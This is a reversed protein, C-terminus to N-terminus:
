ALASLREQFIKRDGRAANRFRRPSVGAARHFTRVFNSLDAFGVDLAVDTISDSGEALLRAARRLRSRVLYQHPTVGIGKAFIRLFHFPSLGAQRATADLDLPALANADIWMAAEVARRRDREPLTVADSKHGSVVDVFRSCFLLGIEDLGIAGLNGVCAQALEGLVVLEPLPPLGGSRWIRDCGEVGARGLTDLVEPSLHFSLCEDGCAHHDHTCMFEDDRRGVLVSGAVMEYTQGRYRYSFGGRRVYSVSHAPHVETVSREDPTSTCRYDTVKVSGSHLTTVVAMYPRLKGLQARRSNDLILDRGISECMGNGHQEAHYSNWAQCNCRVRSRPLTGRM